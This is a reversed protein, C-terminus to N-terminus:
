SKLTAILQFVFGLLILTLALYALRRYLKKRRRVIAAHEGATLGNRLPTADELVISVGERHSPQPLGFFFVLVVGAINLLLGAGNLEQVSM